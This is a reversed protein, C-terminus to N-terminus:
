ADLQAHPVRPSIHLPDLDAELHGIVRFARVLQIARISEQSAARLDRTSAEVKRTPWLGTLAGVIEGDDTAPPEPKWRPGRGLQAPTLGRQGLEAFYGRWSDDVTEPNELYQAYLSEVFATDIGGLFSTAELVENSSRNGLTPQSTM